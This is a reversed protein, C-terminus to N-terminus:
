RESLSVPEATRRFIDYRPGRLNSPRRILFGTGHTPFYINFRDGVECTIPGHWRESLRECILPLARSMIDLTTYAHGILVPRGNHRAAHFHDIVNYSVPELMNAHMWLSRDTTSSERYRYGDAYLADLREVQLAANEWNYPVSLSPQLPHHLWVGHYKAEETPWPDTPSISRDWRERGVTFSVRGQNQGRMM